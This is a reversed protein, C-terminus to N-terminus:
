EYTITGLIVNIMLYGFTELNPWEFIEIGAYNAILVFIWGTLLTIWGIFGLVTFYSFGEEKDNGLLYYIQVSFLGYTIAGTFSVIDGIFSETGDDSEKDSYAIIVIGIFSTFVALGNIIEFKRKLILMAFILTAVSSFNNLIITSSISTMSLAIYYQLLSIFM